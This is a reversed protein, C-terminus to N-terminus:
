SECLGRYLFNIEALFPMSVPNDLEIKALPNKALPYFCSFGSATLGNALGWGAHEM